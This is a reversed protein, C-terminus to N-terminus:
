TYLEIVKCLKVIIVLKLVSEGGGLGVRDGCCNSGMRGEAKPFWGDTETSKGITPM